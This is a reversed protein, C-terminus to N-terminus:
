SLQPEPPPNFAGSEGYPMGSKNLQALTPNLLDQLQATTLGPATTPQMLFTTNMLLWISVAGADVIAPLNVLFTQIANYFTDQSVGANTFTLNAAAVQMDSHAKSTMSLVVGFTGGGGGCLAWYLDSNQSPTATLLEGTGTVVEWELVQDAALGYKSVLPGHGGGQTYGGAFGVTPCNGGVVTLGHAHAVAQAEFNQVGAGVKIANGTYNSSSYNIVQIDKVNHTWIGLAGAGTSKGFYDHGTNRIVIRINNKQAFAITKQYDSTSSANVAYQVYTGIVCQASPPTFPDCSRNAFFPAMVSSSSEYHTQPFGWVSQLQACQGANYSAYSDYHCSSAIPITAILKGGLTGNFQNWEATTPWCSDGPFCRCSSTNESQSHRSEPVPGPAAIALASLLLVVYGSFISASAMAINEFTSFSWHLYSVAGKELGCRAPFQSLHYSNL